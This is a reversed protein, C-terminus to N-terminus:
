QKCLKGFLKRSVSKLKVITTALTKRIEVAINPLDFEREIVASFYAVFTSQM